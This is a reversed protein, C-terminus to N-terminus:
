GREHPMKVVAQGIKREHLLRAMAHTSLSQDAVDLCVIPWFAVV